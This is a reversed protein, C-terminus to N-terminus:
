ETELHMMTIRSDITKIMEDASILGDYYQSLQTYIINRADQNMGCSTSISIRDSFSRFWAISDKSIEWCWKHERNLFSEYSEAAAELQKQWEDLEEEPAKEMEAKIQEVRGAFYALDEDYTPVLKTESLGPCMAILSSLIPNDHVAAVFDLALDVNKSYPNIMILPIEAYVATDANEAPALTLQYLGGIETPNYAAAPSLRGDNPWFLTDQYYGTWGPANGEETLGTAAFDVKEFESLLERFIDTDFTVTGTQTYIYQIYDEIMVDFIDRRVRDISYKLPFMSVVGNKDFVYQNEDIFRFFETWTSPMDEHTFGLEEMALDSYGLQAVASYDVPFAYINGDKTIFDRIHPYMSSVTDEIGPISNLPVLYERQRLVDYVDNNSRLIYIDVEDSQSIMSQIIDSDGSEAIVVDPHRQMFSSKAANAEEYVFWSWEDFVNLVTGSIKLSADYQTILAGEGTMYTDHGIAIAIPAYGSGTAVPCISEASATDMDTIRCLMSNAVYFLTDSQSDYAIYYTSGFKETELTLLEECEESVPDFASFSVTSDAYNVESMLVLGDGYIGHLSADSPILECDEGEIDFVALLSGNIDEIKGVLYGNTVCAQTLYANIAFSGLSDTVTEFELEWEADQELKGGSSLTLRRLVAHIQTNEFDNEDIAICYSVMYMGDDGPIIGWQGSLSGSEDETWESPLTRVTKRYDSFPDVAFYKNRDTTAVLMSDAYIMGNINGNNQSFIDVYTMNSMGANAPLTTLLLAFVVLLLMKKM